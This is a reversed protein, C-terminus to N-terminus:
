PPLGAKLLAVALADRAPGANFIRAESRVRYRPVRELLQSVAAHAEAMRGLVALAGALPGAAVIWLPASGLSRRAWAVAEECRGQMLCAYALGSDIIFRKTDIPNFRTGRMFYVMATEPDGCYLRVWGGLQLATASNPNLGLAQESLSLALDYEETLYGLSHGALMLVDADGEGLRAAMKAMEVGLRRDAKSDESWGLGIRYVCCASTLAYPPAFEPDSTIAHRLLRMTADNEERSDCYYKAMGRLFCDYATPNRPRRRKARSLEANRLQPEIASVVSAAIEDQLEFINDLVGDFRDAWIHVGTETEVLQATIRVRENAKRVSGELVYRM